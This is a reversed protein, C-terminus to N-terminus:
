YTRSSGSSLGHRCQLVHINLSGMAAIFSDAHDRIVAGIGVPGGESIVAAHVNPKHFPFSLRSRCQTKPSLVARHNPSPNSNRKGKGPQM